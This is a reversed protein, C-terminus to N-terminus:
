FGPTVCVGGGNEREVRASLSGSVGGGKKKKRVSRRGQLSGDGRGGGGNGRREGGGESRRGEGSLQSCRRRREDARHAVLRAKGTTRSGWRVEREREGHHLALAGDDTATSGAEGGNVAM